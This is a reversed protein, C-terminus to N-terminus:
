DAIMNEHILKNVVQKAQETTTVPKTEKDQEFSFEEGCGTIKGDKKSELKVDHTKNPTPSLSMVLAFDQVIKEINEKADGLLGSRM